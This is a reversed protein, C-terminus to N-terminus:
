TSISKINRSQQGFAGDRKETRNLIDLVNFDSIEVPIMGTTSHVTVNLAVAFKPLVDMYRYMNRYTFIQEIERQYHTTCAGGSIM